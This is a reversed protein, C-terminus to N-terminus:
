ATKRGRKFGFAIYIGIMTLALGYWTMAYELHDNPIDVRVQGGLPLSSVDGQHDAFVRFHYYEKTGFGFYAAMEHIDAIYWDGKEPQNELTMTGPKPNTMLVGSLSVKGEQLAPLQELEMPVWGFNVMIAQGHDRIVPAYLYYGAKGKLNTGFLKIPDATIRGSFNVRRYALQMPDDVHVPLDIAPSSLGSHISELLETKPGIKRAQWTGLSLLIALAVIM